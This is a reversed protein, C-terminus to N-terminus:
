FKAKINPIFYWLMHISCTIDCPHHYLTKDQKMCKKKIVCPAKTATIRHYNIILTTVKTWPWSERLTMLNQLVLKKSMSWFRGILINYKNYIINQKSTKRTCVDHSWSIFIAWMVGNKTLPALFLSSYMFSYHKNWM